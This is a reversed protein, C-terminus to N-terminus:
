LLPITPFRSTLDFTIILAEYGRDHPDVNVSTVLSVEEPTDVIPLSTNFTAM